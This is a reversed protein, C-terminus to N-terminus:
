KFNGKIEFTIEDKKLIDTLPSELNYFYDSQNLNDKFTLLNDRDKAFGQITFQHSSLQSNFQLIAVDQPVLKSLHIFLQPWDYSDTQISNLVEIKKQLRIIKDTLVKNSALTQEKDYNIQESIVTLSNSIPILIIAILIATIVLFCLFNEINLYIYDIKLYHQQKPSILNLKIM